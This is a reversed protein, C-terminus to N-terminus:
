ATLCIVLSTDPAHLRTDWNYDRQGQCNADRVSSQYNRGESVAANGALRIIVYFRAARRGTLENDNIISEVKSRGPERTDESDSMVEM